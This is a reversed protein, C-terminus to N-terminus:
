CNGASVISVIFNINSSNSVARQQRKGSDDEEITCGKIQVKM